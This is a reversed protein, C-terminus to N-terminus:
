RPKELDKPIYTVLVIGQKQEVAAQRFNSPLVVTKSIYAQLLASNCIPVLGNCSSSSWVKGRRSETIGKLVIHFFLFAQEIELVMLERGKNFFSYKETEYFVTFCYKPCRIKSFPKVDNSTGFNKDFLSESRHCM